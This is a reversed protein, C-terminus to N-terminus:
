RYAISRHEIRDVTVTHAKDDITFVIRYTGARARYFEQGSLKITYTGRPNDALSRLRRTVRERM